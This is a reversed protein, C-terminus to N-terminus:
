LWAERILRMFMLIVLLYVVYDMSSPVYLYTILYGLESISINNVYRFFGAMRYCVVAVFHHFKQCKAPKSAHFFSSFAALSLGAQFLRVLCSPRFGQM